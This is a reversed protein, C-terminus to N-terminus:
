TFYGNLKHFGVIMSHNMSPYVKNLVTYVGLEFWIAEEQHNLSRKRWCVNIFERILNLQCWANLNPM